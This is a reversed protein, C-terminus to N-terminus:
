ENLYIQVRSQIKKAADAIPTAGGEWFSLEETVIEFVTDDTGAKMNANNLFAMFREIYADDLIVEQYTRPRVVGSQRDLVLVEDFYVDPDVQVDTCFLPTLPIMMVPKGFLTPGEPPCLKATPSGIAEYVASDYYAYRNDTIMSRVGSETVPFDNSAVSRQVADSLLHELFLMCGEQVNSDSFVCVRSSATVDIGGGATSPYGCWNFNGDDFMTYLEVLHIPDMVRVSLFKIGGDRIRAPLTVNTYGQKGYANQALYGVEADIYTDLSATYEAMRCFTESDYSASKKGKDFFDLMGNERLVSTVGPDSTLVEEAEMSDVIDFFVDWTLYGDETEETFVLTSFWMNMPIAYLADGYMMGDRVCGLLRDGFAASLDVFANKEYYIELPLTNRSMLMMDPHDDGLMDEAFRAEVEALTSSSINIESATVRYPTNLANFSRVAEQFWDDDALSGYYDFRIVTQSATDPEKEMLVHKLTRVAKEKITENEIAFCHAEDLIRIEANSFGCEAIDLIKTPAHNDNYRLIGEGTRLYYAGNADLLIQAGRDEEAIRLHHPKWTGNVADLVGARETETQMFYNGDGLHYANYLRFAYTGDNVTPTETMFASAAPDYRCLLYETSTGILIMATGDAEEDIKCQYNAFFSVTGVFEDRVTTEATVTGDATMHAIHLRCDWAGKNEFSEECIVIFSGEHLQRAYLPATGKYLPVAVATGVTGDASFPILRPADAGRDDKQSYLWLVGGGVYSNLANVEQKVTTLNLDVTYAPLADSLDTLTHKLIFPLFPIGGGEAEGSTETMEDLAITDTRSDSPQTTAAVSATDCASFVLLFIITCILLIQKKPSLM